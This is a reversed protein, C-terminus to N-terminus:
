VGPSCGVFFSSACGDIVSAIVGKLIAERDPLLHSVYKMRGTTRQEEISSRESDCM